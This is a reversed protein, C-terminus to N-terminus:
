KLQAVGQQYNNEAEYGQDRMYQNTAQTADAIQSQISGSKVYLVSRNNSEQMIARTARGQNTLAPHKVYGEQKLYIALMKGSPPKIGYENQLITRLAQVSLWSKLTGAKGSTIAESVAQHPASKSENIAELFSSTIPAKDALTAPNFEDPIKYTDLFHATKAWGDQNYFWDFLNSFYKGGRQMDNLALDETEQQACFLIAFRRTHDTVKVADKYNSMLLWNICTKITLQDVGKAQTQIRSNGIFRKLAAEAQNRSGTKIEELVALRHNKIYSNFKGGSNCFDEPDVDEVHDDGICYTLVRAILSKGNGEVGQIFPSWLFKKGSYQVFAAMWSILIEADQDNPLMIKIHNYFPSADGEVRLGDQNVYENVYSRGSDEFVTGFEYEPRYARDYVEARTMDPATVYAKWAEKIPKGGFAELFEVTSYMNNYETQGRVVGDPCFVKSNCTMFYHGAFFNPREEYALMRSGGNAKVTTDHVIHQEPKWEQRAAEKAAIQSGYVDRCGRVANLITDRRYDKRNEWKDRVLGSQSMLREIRECDKGTWFALHNCLAQDASSRDFGDEINTPPFAVGLKEVNCDWLDAASVKTGFVQAASTSEKMRKILAKDTKLPKSEPVPETTWELTNDITKPPFYYNVFSPLLHSADFSADGMAGVGTLAVFRDSTYFELGLPINKKRHDAHYGTGTGFIHLGKGSHSIEVACGTFYNVFSQADNTWSGDDNTCNDIDFFWFPDNNTFVFGVGFTRGLNNAIALADAASFWIKPDHANHAYLTNPDLTIKDFKNPNKKNPVAQWIVFQNYNALPMLATPIQNM